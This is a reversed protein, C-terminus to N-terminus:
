PCVAGGSPMAKVDMLAPPRCVHAMSVSPAATQQPESSIPCADGGCPTLKLATLLPM